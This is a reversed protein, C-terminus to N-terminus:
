EAYFDDKADRLFDQRERWGSRGAPSPESEPISRGGPHPNFGLGANLVKNQDIGAIMPTQQRLTPIESNSGGLGNQSSVYSRWGDM